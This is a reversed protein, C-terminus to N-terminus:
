FLVVYKTCCVLSKGLVENANLKVQHTLVVVFVIYAAHLCMLKCSANINKRPLFYNAHYMQVM